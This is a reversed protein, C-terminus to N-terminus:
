LNIIKKRKKGKRSVILWVCWCFFLLLGVAATLLIGMAMYSVLLVAIVGFLIAIKVNSKLKKQEVSTNRRKLEKKSM